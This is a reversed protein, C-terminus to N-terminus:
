AVGRSRAKAYAIQRSRVWSLVHPEPAIPPLSKWAYPPKTGGFKEQFKHFAFGPSYGRLRAVGLLQQYFNQREAESAYTPLVRRDRQVLGLDGDVVDIGVGKVRPVWGCVVCPKGRMRVAHCEPCDVLAPGPAQASRAAHTRNVARSDENLVWAIDDDPLGHVFVSGHLFPRGFQLPYNTVPAGSKNTITIKNESAAWAPLAAVLLTLAAFFRGFSNTM